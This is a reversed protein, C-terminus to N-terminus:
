EAEAELYQCLGQYAENLRRTVENATEAKDTAHFRDPHYRKMLRRHAHKVASIDSGFPLELAAYYAAIQSNKQTKQTNKSNDYSGTNYDSANYDSAYDGAGDPNTRDAAAQWPADDLTNKHSLREIEAKLVRGLRSLLSM